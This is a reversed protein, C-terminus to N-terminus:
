KISRVHKIFNEPATFRYLKKPREAALRLIRRVFSPKYEGEPDRLVLLVASKLFETEKRLEKVEHYIKEATQITM